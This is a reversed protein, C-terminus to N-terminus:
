PNSGGRSWWGEGGRPKPQCALRLWALRLIDASAKASASQQREGHLTARNLAYMFALGGQPYYHMRGLPNYALLNGGATALKNESTYSYTHYRAPPEADGGARQRRLDREGGGRELLRGGTTPIPLTGSSLNAAARLVYACCDTISANSVCVGRDPGHRRLAGRRPHYHM